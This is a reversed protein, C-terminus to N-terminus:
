FAEVFIPSLEATRSSRIATFFEDPNALRMVCGPNHFHVETGAAVAERLEPRFTAQDGNIRSVIYRREGKTPHQISFVEGGELAASSPLTLRLRTERLPADALVTGVPASGAYFTTDSFPAGDSHPVPDTPRAWPVFAAECSGVVIPTLGGDLIMDLARAAMLQERRHLFIGSMECVWLGAGITGSARAPGIVPLGGGIVRNQLRWRVERAPFLAGPWYDM